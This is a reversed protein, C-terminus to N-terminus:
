AASSQTRKLEALLTELQSFNADVAEDMCSSKLAGDRAAQSAFVVSLTVITMGDQEALLLTGLSECSPDHDYVETRTIRAPCVIDKYVGSIGIEHGDANRWQWHFAGGVRLDNDCRFFTWGAPGMWRKLLAPKTYCDFIMSRPADFLRTMMIERDSPLTVNVSVHTTM